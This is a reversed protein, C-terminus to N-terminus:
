TRDIGAKGDAKGVAYADKSIRYILEELQAVLPQVDHELCKAEVYAAAKFLKDKDM